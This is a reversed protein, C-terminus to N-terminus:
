KETLNNFGFEVKSRLASEDEEKLEIQLGDMLRKVVDNVVAKVDANQRVIKDETFKVITLDANPRSNVRNRFNNWNFISSARDSPDFDGQCFRLVESATDQLEGSLREVSSLLINSSAVM